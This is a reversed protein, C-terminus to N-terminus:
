ATPDPPDTANRIPPARAAYFIAGPLFTGVQLQGIGGKARLTAGRTFSFSVTSPDFTQPDAAPFQDASLDTAIYVTGAEITGIVAKTLAGGIDFLAEPAIGGNPASLQSITGKVRLGTFIFGSNAGSFTM